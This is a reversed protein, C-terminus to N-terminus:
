HYDEGIATIEIDTILKWDLGGDEKRPLPNHDPVFILRHNPSIDVALEGARPAKLAHCNAAPVNRMADLNPAVSLQELRLAVKKARDGYNKKIASPSEVSKELKRTQYRIKM